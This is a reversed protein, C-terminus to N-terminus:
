RTPKTLGHAESKPNPSADAGPGQAPLSAGYQAGNVKELWDVTKGDLAEVIAIHAMSSDPAAGHWHKQGPPIWVV